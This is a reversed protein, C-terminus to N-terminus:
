RVYSVIMGIVSGGGRGRGSVVVRQHVKFNILVINSLAFVDLM